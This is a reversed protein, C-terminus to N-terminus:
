RAGRSPTLEAIRTKLEDLSDPRTTRERRASAARLMEARNRPPQEHFPPALWYILPGAQCEGGSEQPLQEFYRWTTGLEAVEDDCRSDGADDASLLMARQDIEDLLWALAGARDREGSDSGHGRANRYGATWTM